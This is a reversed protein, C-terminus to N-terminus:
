IDETTHNVVIELTKRIIDGKVADETTKLAAMLRVIITKNTLLEQSAIISNVVTGLLLSEEALMEGANRFYNSLATDPVNTYADSQKIM